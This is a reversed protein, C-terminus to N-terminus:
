LLKHGSKVVFWIITDTLIVSCQGTRHAVGCSALMYSYFFLIPIM